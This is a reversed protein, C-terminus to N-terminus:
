RARPWPHDMQRYRNLLGDHAQRKQEDLQRQLPDVFKQPDPNPTPAGPSPGAPKKM